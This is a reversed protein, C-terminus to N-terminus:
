IHVFLISMIKGTFTSILSRLSLTVDATAESYKAQTLFSDACTNTNARAPELALSSCPLLIFPHLSEIAGSFLCCLLELFM